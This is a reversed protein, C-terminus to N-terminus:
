VFSEKGSQANELIRLTTSNDVDVLAAKIKEASAADLWTFLEYQNGVDFMAIMSMYNDSINKMRLVRDMKEMMYPRSTRDYYYKAWVALCCLKIDHFIDEDPATYYEKSM